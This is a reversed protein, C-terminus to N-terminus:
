KAFYGEKTQGSNYIGEANTDIGELSSDSYFCWEGYMDDMHASVISFPRTWRIQYGFEDHGDTDVFADSINTVTGTMGILHPLRHHRVVFRVGVFILNLALKGRETLEVAHLGKMRVLKLRMLDIIHRRMHANGGAVERLLTLDDPSVHRYDIM